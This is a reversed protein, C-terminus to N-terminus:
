IINSQTKEDQIGQLNKLKNNSLNVFKLKNALQMWGPVEYLGLSEASIYQINKLINSIM